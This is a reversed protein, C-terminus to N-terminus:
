PLRPCGQCVHKYTHIYMHVLIYMCVYICVRSSTVFVEVEAREARMLLWAGWTFGERLFCAQCRFVESSWSSALGFIAVARAGGAALMIISRARHLLLLLLLPLLRHPPPIDDGTMRACRYMCGNRRRVPARWAGIAIVSPHQDDSQKLGDRHRPVVGRRAARCGASSGSHSDSISLGGVSTRAPCFCPQPRITRPLTGKM